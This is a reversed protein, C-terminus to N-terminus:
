VTRKCLAYAIEALTETNEFGSIAKVAEDTLEDAYRQAEAVTMYSLYTTKEDEEGMDFIDDKVQFAIGICRGYTDAASIEAEGVGAAICGMICACRILEGCKLENMKKHKERDLREKEGILDLQQGGIMGNAGACDALLKVARVKDADSLGGDECILSFAMTLLADGALLATAEGYVKHNTPEGRRIDDNDMCPLDDHILSYTHVMELACGLTLASDTDGGFARAFEIVLAPRVRKGGGLASYRMSDFLNKFDNDTKDLVKALRADVLAADAELCILIEKM